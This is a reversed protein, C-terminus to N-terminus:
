HDHFGWGIGSTIQGVKARGERLQPYEEACPRNVEIKM